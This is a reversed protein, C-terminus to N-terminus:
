QHVDVPTPQPVTSVRRLDTAEAIVSEYLEAQPKWFMVGVGDHQTHTVVGMISWQRGGRFLELEVLAGTLMTLSETRLYIGQMSCNVAKAPFLRQKRYRIYVEGDMPYRKSYRKEVPM